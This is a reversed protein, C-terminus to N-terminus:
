YFWRLHCKSLQMASIHIQYNTYPKLKNISLSLAIYYFTVNNSTWQHLILLNPSRLLRMKQHLIVQRKMMKRPHNLRLIKMQKSLILHSLKRNQSTTRIRPHNLRLIKLLNPSRLLRMKQHLIVQRKMMKRPHNLRLIKMQKSLILHSLKRNQSTTRIRPHNLRLIKLLNPSPARPAPDSAEKDNEQPSKIKSNEDTQTTDSTVAEQKSQNESYQETQEPEEQETGDQNPKKPFVSVINNKDSFATQNVFETEQAVASQGVEVVNKEADKKKETLFLNKPEVEKIGVPSAKPKTTGEVLGTGRTVHDKRYVTAKKGAKKKTTTSNKQKGKAGVTAKKGAKKKTTTSNKQKGKAGVTAKKGAKKKTTTSNKQKGKAGVTSANRETTKQKNLKYLNSSTNGVTSANRETPKQKNLKYLNSSTNGVTSANRETPKQKNLKYLNSSTNGVTSANRGTTKNKNLKYLNSSTASPKRLSSGSNKSLKVLSKLSPQSRYARNTPHNLRGRDSRDTSRSPSGSVLDLSSALVFIATFIASRM